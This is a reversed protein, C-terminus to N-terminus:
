FVGPVLRWRQREMYAAYAPDQGLLAEEALLRKIQAAWAIGYITANLWSPNIALTGIHMALYGAYMPHRVFRYLGDVKVGRNAPAIGFSRRLSLKAGIQMAMGAWFLLPALALLPSYPQAGPVMCLPMFTATAALAWDRPALSIAQTPRRILVFLLIPFEGLPAMLAYANHNHFYPGLARWLLGVWLVAVTVQEIRDLLAPPVRPSAVVPPPVEAVTEVAFDFPRM